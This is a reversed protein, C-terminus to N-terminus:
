MMNNLRARIKNFEKKDLKRNIENLLELLEDSSTKYNSLGIALQSFMKNKTKEHPYDLFLIIKDFMENLEEDTWSRPPYENLFRKLAQEKNWTAEFDIKPEWLSTIVALEQSTLEQKYDSINGKIGLPIKEDKLIWLRAKEHNNYITSYSKLEKELEKKNIKKLADELYTKSILFEKDDSGKIEEKFSNSLARKLAYIMDKLSICFTVAKIQKWREAKEKEINKMKNKFMRELRDKATIRKWDDYRLFQNIILRIEVPDRPDNIFRIIIKSLKSPHTYTIIDKIVWLILYIIFSIIATIIVIQYEKM